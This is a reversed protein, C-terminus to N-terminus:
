HPTRECGACVNAEPTLVSANGPNDTLEMEKSARFETDCDNMQKDTKDKKDNQVIDWLTFIQDMSTGNDIYFYTKRNDNM